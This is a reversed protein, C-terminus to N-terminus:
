DASRGRSNDDAFVRRRKPKDGSQEERPKRVMTPEPLTNYFMWFTPMLDTISGPNALQLPRNIFALQGLAMTWFADPSTWVTAHPIDANPHVKNDDLLMNAQAAFSEIVEISTGAPAAPLEVPEKTAAAKICTLAMALPFYSAPLGQMDVQDTSHGREPKAATISDPRVAVTLGVSKLLAIVSDAESTEAPWTGRLTVKGGTFAPYALLSACITPDMTIAPYVPFDPEDALITCTTGEVTYEIGASEFIPTVIGLANAAADNQSLDIAVNTGWTTAAVLTAIVAEESLTDPIAVTEPILGSCELRVPLGNSRPVVHAIRAGLQTLFNRFASIDADKLASGGTLKMTGHKAAAQLALLYVNFESNGAFIVKDAFDLAKAEKCFLDNGKWSLRAGAQNFAKVIDSVPHATSIGTLNCEVGNAAALAIWIQTPALAAPGAIDVNVPQTNPALGFGTHDEADDRSIFEIDQILTFMQHALRPDRSFKCASEEWALRIRKENSISDTGAGEKKRRRTKKLLKSRRALLKLLELDLESIEEVLTMNKKM